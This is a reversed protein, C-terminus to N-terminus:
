FIVLCFFSSFFSRRYLTSLLTHKQAPDKDHDFYLRSFAGDLSLSLFFTLFSQFLIATGILAYEEPALFRTYVPALFFNAAVPLFGVLIYVFAKQLFQVQM